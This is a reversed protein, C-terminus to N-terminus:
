RGHEAQDEAALQRWHRARILSLIGFSLAIGPVVLSVPEQAAMSRRALEGGGSIGGVEKPYLLGVLFVATLGVLFM